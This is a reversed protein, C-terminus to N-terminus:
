SSEGERRQQGLKKHLRDAESEFPPSSESGEYEESAKRFLGDFGRALPGQKVSQAEGLIAQLDAPETITTLTTMQDGSVGIVLVQSGVQVLCIQQKPSLYSRGLLQISPHSLLSQRAPLFRRLMWASIYLLGLVLLLYLGVRLLLWGFSETEVKPRILGKRESLPFLQSEEKKGWDDVNKKTKSSQKSKKPQKNQAFLAPQGYLLCGM